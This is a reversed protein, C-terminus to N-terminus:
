KHLEGSYSSKGFGLILYGIPSFLLLGLVAFLTGKKFSKAIGLIMLVVAYINIIPILLGIVWWGSEGAIRFQTYYNYLPVIAKWGKVGAKEFMKWQAVYLIVALVIALVYFIIALTLATGRFGTNNASAILHLHTM